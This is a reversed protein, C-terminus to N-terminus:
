IIYTHTHTHTCSRACVQNPLDGMNMHEELEREFNTKAAKITAILTDDLEAVVPQPLRPPTAVSQAMVEPTKPVVPPQPKTDPLPTSSPAM